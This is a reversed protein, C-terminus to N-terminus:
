LINELKLDRHMVQHNHCFEISYIIQRFFYLAEEETLALGKGNTDNLKKNHLYSELSGGQMCELVLALNTNTLVLEYIKVINRSGECLNAQIEIEKKLCKISRM